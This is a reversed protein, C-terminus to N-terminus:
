PTRGRAAPGDGARLRGLLRLFAYLLFIGFIRALVGPTLGLNRLLVAAAAAPLAAMVLPRAVGPVVRGDRGALWAARLATPVMALLSTGAAEHFTFGGVLFVLAPVV